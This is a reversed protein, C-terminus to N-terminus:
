CSVNRNTDSQSMEPKLKKTPPSDVSSKDSDVDIPVTQSSNKTVPKFFNLISSM